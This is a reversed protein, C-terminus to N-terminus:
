AARSAYAQPSHSLFVVVSAGGLILSLLSGATIADRTILTMGAMLWFHLTLYAGFADLQWTPNELLKATIPARTFADGGNNQAFAYFLAPLVAGCFLIWVTARRFGLDPMFSEERIIKNGRERHNM